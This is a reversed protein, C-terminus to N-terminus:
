TLYADWGGRSFENLITKGNEARLGKLSRSDALVHNSQFSFDNHTHLDKVVKATFDVPSLDKHHDNVFAGYTSTLIVGCGLLTSLLIQANSMPQETTHTKTKAM